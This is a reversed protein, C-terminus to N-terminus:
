FCFKFVFLCVFCLKITGWFLPYAYAIGMLIVVSADLSLDGPLGCFVAM